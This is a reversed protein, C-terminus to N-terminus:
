GFYRFRDHRIEGLVLRHLEIALWKLSMRGLGQAHFRRDAIEVIPRRTFAYRGAKRLRVVYDQDEAVTVSADFGGIRDHLDRRVFLFGGISHPWGLKSSLWFYESSLRHQIRVGWGRGDPEFATSAADFKLRRSEDLIEELATPPLRVDADLFLLWRGSAKRAGLNRSFGPLGGGTVVEAGADRAVERTRDQSNADVVLVERVGVTQADLSALLIPLWAEENLVPVVVSVDATHKV